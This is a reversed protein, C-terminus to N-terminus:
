TNKQQLVNHLPYFGFKQYFALADENGQAVIIKKESVNESNLWELALQMLNNGIGKKRYPQDIFISDIEGTIVNAEKSVSSICYAVLKEITQDEAVDIRLKGHITKVLLNKKRQEFTMKQYRSTFNASNKAHHDRLGEWLTKILDIDDSDINRININQIL